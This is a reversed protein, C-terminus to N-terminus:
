VMGGRPLWQGIRASRNSVPHRGDYPARVRSPIPDVGPVVRGRRGGRGPGRERAVPQASGIVGQAGSPSASARTVASLPCRESGWDAQHVLAEATVGLSENHRRGAAVLGVRGILVAGGILVPGGVLLPVSWIAYDGGTRIALGGRRAPHRRGCRCRPSPCGVVTSPRARLAARHARATRCEWREYGRLARLVSAM